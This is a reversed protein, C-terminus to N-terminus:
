LRAEFLSSARQFLDPNGGIGRGPPSLDPIELKGPFDKQARHPPPLFQDDGVPFGLKALSVPDGEHSGALVDRRGSFIQPSFPSKGRGEAPESIEM